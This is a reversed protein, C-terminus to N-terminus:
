PPEQFLRLGTLHPQVLAFHADYTWLEAGLDMALAAVIVDPFPITLGVARLRAITRARDLQDDRYRRYGTSSDVEAPRLLGVEDYHRLAGISLGALRGFRGITLLESSM